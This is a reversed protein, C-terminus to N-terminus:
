VVGVEATKKGGTKKGGRKKKGARGGRIAEIVEDQFKTLEGPYCGMLAQGIKAMVFADVEDNTKFELGWRKYVILIMQEKKANGTGSAFRKVQGTGIVQWKYALKHLMLRLVGGLEGMQHAQNSKSFAYDEICIIEPSHFDLLFKVHNSISVLREVGKLETEYQGNYVVEKEKLRSDLVVIGTGTLSADIGM